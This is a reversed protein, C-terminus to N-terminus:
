AQDSSPVAYTNEGFAEVEGVLRDAEAVIVELNALNGIAAVDGKSDVLVVTNPMPKYYANWAIRDADCLVLLHPDKLNCTTVCGTGHPYKETPESIQTVTIHRYRLDEALSLLKPNLWCRQSGNFSVFAVIAIPECLEDFSTLQCDTTIVPFNPTSKGVSLETPETIANADSKQKTISSSFVVGATVIILTIVTFLQVNVTIERRSLMLSSLIIIAIVAVIRKVDM